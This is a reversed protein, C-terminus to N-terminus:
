ISTTLFRMNILQVVTYNM